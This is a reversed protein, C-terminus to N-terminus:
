KVLIEKWMLQTNKMKPINQKDWFHSLHFIWHFVEETPERMRHRALEPVALTVRQSKDAPTFNNQGAIVFYMM